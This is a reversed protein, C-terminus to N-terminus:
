EDKELGLLARAKDDNDCSVHGDSIIDSLVRELDEIRKRMVEGVSRVGDGAMADYAHLRLALLVIRQQDVANPCFEGMDCQRRLTM